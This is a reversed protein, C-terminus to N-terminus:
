FVNYMESSWGLKSINHDSISTRNFADASLASNTSCSGSNYLSFNMFGNGNSLTLIFWKKLLIGGFKTTLKDNM